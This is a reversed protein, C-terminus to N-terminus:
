FVSVWVRGHGFALLAPNNGIRITAATMDPVAISSSVSGTAAISSPPDEV